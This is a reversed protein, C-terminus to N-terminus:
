SRLIITFRTGKDLESEIEISGGFLIIIHKVIALGLGSGEITNSRSKDVRYFREFIRSIDEKPIGIGNDEIIIKIGDNYNFVDVKINGNEETYKISNEILNIIILRFWDNDGNITNLNEEINSEIKINKKDALPNLLNLVEYIDDRVHISSLKKANKINEIESLRLLDSILGKLRETEFEIIDIVKDKSEDDLARTKLTEVFGLISTLPTRLEHSVNAVFDKRMKELKRISTVDKIILLIGIEDEYEDKGQIISTSLDIIKKRDDGIEIETSYEGGNNVAKKIEYLLQNDELIDGIHRGMYTDNDLDLINVASNNMLIIHNERDLAILGDGMSALIADMKTNKEKIEDITLKLKCAMQNFSTSLEEIEDKTDVEVRKNFDGEAILKSAETLEKVPKTIRGASIYGIIIAIILGAITSILAYLFFREIIHDIAEYGEGLRVIVELNGVKVPPIALYFTKNGIENSYRQVIQRHGKMAHQFEPHGNAREFIISNDISDAIIKGDSKIFTVRSNIQASLNQALRYFNVEESNKNSINLADEILNINSLLKEEKSKMYSMKIFNFALVGSILASALLIIIFNTLIRKRM